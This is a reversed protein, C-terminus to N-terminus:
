VFSLLLAVAGSGVAGSTGEATFEAVGVATPGVVALVFSAAALGVGLGECM